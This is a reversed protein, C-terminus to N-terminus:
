VAPAAGEAVPQFCAKLYFHLLVVLLVHIYTVDLLYCLQKFQAALVAVDVLATIGALIADEVFQVDVVGFGAIWAGIAAAGRFRDGFLIIKKFKRRKGPAAPVRHFCGSKMWGSSFAVFDDGEHLLSEIIERDATRCDLPADWQRHLAVVDEIDPEVSQGSVKRLLWSVPEPGGVQMQDTLLDDAEM